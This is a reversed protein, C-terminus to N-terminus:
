NSFFRLAGLLIAMGTFMSGAVYRVTEAKFKELMAKVDSIESDIRSDLKHVRNQVQYTVESSRSKELNIDLTFGGKLKILDDKVAERLSNLELQLKENENRLASFESKELIIMDKKLSAIHIMVQQIAVDQGPKTVCQKKVDTSVYNVVEKFLMCMEEAQANSFGTSELQKVFAHTDFYSIEAVAARALEYSSSTTSPEISTPSAFVPTTPNTTGNVVNSNASASASSSFSSSSDTALTRRCFSSISSSCISSRRSSNFQMSHHNQHIGSHYNKSKNPLQVLGIPQKKLLCRLLM